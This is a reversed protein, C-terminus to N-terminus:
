SPLDLSEQTNSWITKGCRPCPPVKKGPDFEAVQGCNTCAAVTPEEMTTGTQILDRDAMEWPPEFQLGPRVQDQDFGFISAKDDTEIYMRKIEGLNRFGNQRAMQFIERKSIGVNKLGELDLLGNVVVVSPSGKIFQDVEKNRNAFYLGLRQLGAILTIVLMGHLLPVEPYFMPDGVASGLAVVLVVDVVTLEGASRKGLFRIVTLTFIYLLVTRLAIELYISAPQTGFFIRILDFTYEEM